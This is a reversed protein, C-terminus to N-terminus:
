ARLFWRVELLHWTYDLGPDDLTLSIEADLSCGKYVGDLNPVTQKASPKAAGAPPKAGPPAGGGGGTAVGGGGGGGTHEESKKKVGCDRFAKTYKEWRSPDAALLDARFM